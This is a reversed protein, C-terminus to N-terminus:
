FSETGTLRVTFAMTRLNVTGTFRYSSKIHKLSGTGEVDGGAGTLPAIDQANPKGISFRERSTASGSAFYTKTVDTGGNAAANLRVTQFGAGDGFLSDHIQFVSVTASIPAGVIKDAFYVKNKAAVSIAPIATLACAAAVAIVAKRM